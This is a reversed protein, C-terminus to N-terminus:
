GEIYEEKMERTVEEYIERMQGMFYARDEPSLRKLRDEYRMAILQIVQNPSYGFRILDLMNSGIAERESPHGIWERMTFGRDPKDELTGALEDVVHSFEHALVGLADTRFDEAIQYLPVRLFLIPKGHISGGVGTAADGTTPFFELNDIADLAEDGDWGFRAAIEDIIPDTIFDNWVSYFWADVEDWTLGNRALDASTLGGLGIHPQKAKLIRSVKRELRLM